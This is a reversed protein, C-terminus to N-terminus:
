GALKEGLVFIESSLYNIQLLKYFYLLLASKVASLCYVYKLLIQM